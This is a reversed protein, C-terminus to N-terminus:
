LDPHQSDQQRLQESLQLPVDQFNIHYILHLHHHFYM